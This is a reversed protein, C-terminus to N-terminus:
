AVPNAAPDSAKNRAAGNLSPATSSLMEDLVEAAARDELIAVNTILEIMRQVYEGTNEFLPVPQTIRQGGEATPGAFMQFNPNPGPVPVWGHRSMYDLAAASRIHLVRRDIWPDRFKGTM